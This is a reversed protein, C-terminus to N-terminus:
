RPGGARNVDAEHLAGEDLTYRTPRLVAPSFVHVSLATQPGANAVRHVHQAGFTRGEGAPLLREHETGGLWSHETLVGTVAHLAGASAHHDHWGTATGPPWVLLWIQLHATSDLLHEQRQTSAADVLSALEPDTAFLRATRLLQQPTFRSIGPTGATTTITM